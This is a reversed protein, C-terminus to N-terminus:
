GAGGVGDGAASGGDADSDRFEDGEVGAAAVEPEVGFRDGVDDVCFDFGGGGQRRYAGWGFEVVPEGAGGGWGDWDGVGGGSPGDIEADGAAFDGVAGYVGSDDGDDGRCDRIAGAGRGLVAVWLRLLFDAAGASDGVDVAEFKTATRGQGDDLRVFGTGGGSVADFGDDASSDRTGWRSDGSLDIGLCLLHDRVGAADEVSRSPRQQGYGIEVLVRAPNGSVEGGGVDFEERQSLPTLM